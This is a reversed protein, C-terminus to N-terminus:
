SETIKAASREGRPAIESPAALANPPDLDAEPAHLRKSKPVDEM